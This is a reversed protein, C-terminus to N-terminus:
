NCSKDLKGSLIFLLHYEVGRFFLPLFRLFYFNLFIINIELFPDLNNNIGYEINFFILM